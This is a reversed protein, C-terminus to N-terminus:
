LSSGQLQRLRIDNYTDAHASPYNLLQLMHTANYVTTQTNSLLLMRPRWRWRSLIEQRWILGGMSMWGDRRGMSRRNRSGCQAPLQGWRMASVHCSPAGTLITESYVIEKFNVWIANLGSQSSYLDISIRRKIIGNWHLLSYQITVACHVATISAPTTGHVGAGWVTGSATASRVRVVQMVRDTWHVDTMVWWEILRKGSQFNKKPLSLRISLGCERKM